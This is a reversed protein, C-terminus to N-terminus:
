PAPKRAAKNLGAILARFGALNTKFVDPATAEPDSVLSVDYHFEPGDFILMLVDSREDGEIARGDFGFMTAQGFGPLGSFPVDQKRWKPEGIRVNMTELRAIADFMVRAHPVKEDRTAARPTARFLMVGAIEKPSVLRLSLCGQRGEALDDLPQTVWPKDIPLALEGAVCRPPQASAVSAALACLALSASILCARM